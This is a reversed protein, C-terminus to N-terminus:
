FINVGLAELVVTAYSSKPLEFEIVMQKTDKLFKNKINTPKITAVRRFGKETIFPDFFQKELIAAENTAKKVNRGSMAGTINGNTHLIDGKIPSIKKLNNNKCLSVRQHLWANFLYSQYATTLFKQLKKDKIFIEGYAVAKAKQFDNQIGFRQYGFYNPVGHKQITGLTQYFPALQDKSFNELIIKFRNGQLEGIKFKKNHKFTKLITINKTQIKKINALSKLPISIYQITTARKDKLGCYGIDNQKLNLVKSIHDLLEWTSTNIKKIMLVLFSGKENFQMMPIEQVFFSNKTQEFTCHLPENQNFYIRTFDIKYDKYYFIGFITLIKMM